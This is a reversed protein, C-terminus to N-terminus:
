LRFGFQYDTAHFGVGTFPHMRALNWALGWIYLRGMASADDQYHQLSYMRDWWSQPMIALGIALAFSIAILSQMKHKSRLWLVGSLAVLGLLAGRSYSTLAVLMSLGIALVFGTRIIPHRAQGRLYNMLPVLILVAAAFANNDSIQSNPPGFAKHAGGTIVAIGGQDLIYYGISIIIVWILADIRQKSNALASTILLFVFIKIVRLWADYETAFPSLAFPVNITIGIMFLVILVNTNTLPISKPETRSFMWGIITAFFSLLAWPPYSGIGWSIQQPNLFSIMDFALVGVFPRYVALPLLFLMEALLILSRM